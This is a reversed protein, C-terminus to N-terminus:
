DQEQNRKKGKATAHVIGEKRRGLIERIGLLM